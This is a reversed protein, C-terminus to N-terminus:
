TSLPCGSGEKTGGHSQWEYEFSDRNELSSQLGLNCALTSQSVLTSLNWSMIKMGVFLGGLVWGEWFTLGQWTVSQLAVHDVLILFEVGHFSISHFEHFGMVGHFVIESNLRTFQKETAKMPQNAVAIRSWRPMFVRICHDISCQLFEM